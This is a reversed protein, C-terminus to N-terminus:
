LVNGIFPSKKWGVDWRCGDGGWVFSFAWCGKSDGVYDCVKVSWVFGPTSSRCWRASVRQSRRGWMTCRRTLRSSWTYSPIARDAHYQCWWHNMMWWSTNVLRTNLQYRWWGSVCWCLKLFTEWDTLYLPRSGCVAPDPLYKDFLWSYQYTYFKCQLYIWQSQSWSWVMYDKCLWCKISFYIQIIM